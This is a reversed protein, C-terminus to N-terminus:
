LVLAVHPARLRRHERGWGPYTGDFTHSTKYLEYQGNKAATATKALLAAVEAQNMKHFTRAAELAQGLIKLSNLLGSMWRFINRVASARWNLKSVTWIGSLAM